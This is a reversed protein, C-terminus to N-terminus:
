MGITGAQHVRDLYSRLQVARATGVGEVQDLEDVSAYLM